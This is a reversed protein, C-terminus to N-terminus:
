DSLGETINPMEVGGSNKREERFEGEGDLLVVALRMGEIWVEFRKSCFRSRSYRLYKLLRMGRM